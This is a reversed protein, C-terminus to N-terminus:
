HRWQLLPVVVANSEVPSLDSSNHSLRVVKVIAFVLIGTGVAGGLFASTARRSRLKTAFAQRYFAQADPGLSKRVAASDADTAATTGARGVVFAMGVPGAILGGVFGRGLWGTTGPVSADARAMERIRAMEPDLGNPTQARVPTAFVIPILLLAPIKLSM